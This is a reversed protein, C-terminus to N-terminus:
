ATKWTRRPKDKFAKDWKDVARLEPKPPAAGQLDDLAMFLQACVDFADDYRAMPFGVLQQVVRDVWDARAPFILKGMSARAQLSRGKAAKARKSRDKFGQKDASREARPANIWQLNAYLRRERMRKLLFPEVARRIVGGEGVAMAPKWRAWKDLLSEIWVDAQEQGFWWDLVYVDDNADVGFVGHETYDPDNGDEESEETVAFDSSTYINLPPLKKEDDWRRLFYAPKLYKGAAPRVNWNGGLLREREVEPLAELRARYGPDAKTLAPNDELRAAIFTFSIPSSGPFQAQLEEASAAWFLSGGNRVFWRIVGSREKIPSGHEDIFWDILDRVFSDPDPNTTCRMYPKVGSTSRMRSVLYWFQFAEFHTLEDFGIFAYQKGQHDYVDSERQLHLFQLMAGSPFVAELTPSETMRAGIGRYLGGAEEWLSGAGTLQPSTRRFIAGGFKAIGSHRVPELLLAFSKGGGAAGGYIAIDASTSLFAEQPGPQPRIDTM